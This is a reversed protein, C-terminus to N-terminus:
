LPLGKTAPDDAALIDTDLEADDGLYAEIVERVKV